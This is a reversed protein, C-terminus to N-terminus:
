RVASIRGVTSQAHHLRSRNHKQEQTPDAIHDTLIQWIQPMLMDGIHDRIEVLSLATAGDKDTANPDVGAALADHVLGLLTGWDKSPPSPGSFMMMLQSRGAHDRVEPEWTAGRTVLLHAVPVWFNRGSHSSSHQFPHENGAVVVERGQACRLILSLPSDRGQGRRNVDAGYSCLMEIVDASKSRLRHIETVVPTDLDCNPGNQANVEVGNQLLFRVVPIIAASTCVQIAKHLVSNGCHDVAGVDAGHEILVGLTKLLLRQNGHFHFGSVARHLPLMSSLPSNGSGSGSADSAAAAQISDIGAGRLVKLLEKADGEIAANMINECLESSDTDPPAIWRNAAQALLKKRNKKERQLQRRLQDVESPDDANTNSNHVGLPVAARPAKPADGSRSSNHSANTASAMSRWQKWSSHLSRQRWSGVHSAITRALQHVSPTAGPGDATPQGFLRRAAGPGQDRSAGPVVYDLTRVREEERQKAGGKPQDAVPGAAPAMLDVHRQRHGGAHQGDHQLEVLRAEMERQGREAARKAEVAAALERRAVEAESRAAAALRRKEALHQQDAMQLRDGAAAAESKWWELEKQAANAQDGAFSKGRAQAQADERAETLAVGLDKLQVQLGASAQESEQLQARVSALEAAHAGTASDLQTRLVAAQGDENRRLAKVQERAMRLEDALAESTATLQAKHAASQALQLAHARVESELRVIESAQSSLQEDTSENRKALEDLCHRHQQQADELQSQLIALQGARRAEKEELAAQRTDEADAAQKDAMCRQERERELLAESARHQGELEECRAVLSATARQSSEGEARAV